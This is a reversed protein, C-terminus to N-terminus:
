IGMYKIVDEKLDSRKVQLLSQEKLINTFEETVEKLVREWLLYYDHKLSITKVGTAENVGQKLLYPDIASLIDEIINKLLVEDLKIYCADTNCKTFESMRENLIDKASETIEKLHIESRRFLEDVDGFSIIDGKFLCESIHHTLIPNERYNEVLYLLVPVPLFTLNMGGTMEKFQPRFQSIEDPFDPAVIVMYKVYDKYVGVLQDRCMDTAYSKLTVLYNPHKILYDYQGSIATKCEIVIIFPDQGYTGLALLDWGKKRRNTITEYELLQFSDDVLKEFVKEPRENYKERALETNQISIEELDEKLNKLTTEINRQLPTIVGDEKKRKDVMDILAELTKGSIYPPQIENLDILNQYILEAMVAVYHKCFPFKGRSVQFTYDPCKSDCKYSFDITGLNHINIEYQSVTAKIHDDSFHIVNINKRMFHDESDRIKSIFKDEWLSNVMVEIEEQSLDLNNAVFRALAVHKYKSYGKLGNNKCIEKLEKMSLKKLLKYKERSSM